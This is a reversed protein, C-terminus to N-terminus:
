EYCVDKFNRLLHTDEHQTHQIKLGWVFIQTMVYCKDAHRILELKTFQFHVATGTRAPFAYSLPNSTHNLENEVEVNSILPHNVERGPRKVRSSSGGTGMSCYATHAESGAQVTTRVPFRVVVRRKAPWLRTVSDVTSARNGNLHPITLFIWIKGRRSQEWIRVYVVTHHGVSLLSLIHVVLNFYVSRNIQSQIRSRVTGICRPRLQHARQARFYVSNSINSSKQIHSVQHRV